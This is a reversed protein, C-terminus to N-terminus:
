ISCSKALELAQGETFGAQMYALFMTRRHRAIDHAHECQMNMLTLLSTFADEREERKAQFAPPVGAGM